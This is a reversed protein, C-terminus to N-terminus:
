KMQGSEGLFKWSYIFKGDDNMMDYSDAIM